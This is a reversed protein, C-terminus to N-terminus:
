VWNFPFKSIIRIFIKINKKAKLKHQVKQKNMKAFFATNEASLNKM